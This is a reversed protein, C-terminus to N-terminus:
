FGYPYGELNKDDEWVYIYNDQLSFFYNPVDYNKKLKNNVKKYVEIKLLDEDQVFKIYIAQCDELLEAKEEEVYEEATKGTQDEFVEKLYETEFEIKVDTLKYYSGILATKSVLTGFPGCGTAMFVCPIIMAFALGFTLFKKM